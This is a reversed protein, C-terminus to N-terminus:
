SYRRLEVFKHKNLTNLIRIFHRSGLIEAVQAERVSKCALLLAVLLFYRPGLMEILDRAKAYALNLVALDVASLRTVYIQDFPFKKSGGALVEWPPVGSVLGASARAENLDNTSPTAPLKGYVKVEAAVGALRIVLDCWIQDNGGGARARYNVSGGHAAEITALQITQVSTCFWAAVM